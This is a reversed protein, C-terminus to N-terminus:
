PGLAALYLKVFSPELSYDIGAGYYVFTDKYRYSVSTESSPPVLMSKLKGSEVLMKYNLEFDASKVLTSLQQLVANVLTLHACDELALESVLASLEEASGMIQYVLEYVVPISDQVVTSFKPSLLLELICFVEEVLSSVQPLDSHKLLKQKRAFTLFGLLTQYLEKWAYNKHNEKPDVLELLQYMIASWSKFIDINLKRTLNTRFFVQCVDLIYHFALKTGLEDLSPPVIPTSQHCLKYKFEDISYTKLNPAIKQLTSNRYTGVKPSTIKLLTLMAFKSTARLVSQDHVNRLVYSTSSLWYELVQSAQCTTLHWLFSDNQSYAAIWLNLRLLPIYVGPKKPDIIRQLESLFPSNKGLLPLTFHATDSVNLAIYGSGGITNASVWAVFSSNQVQEVYLDPAESYLAGYSRALVPCLRPVFLEQFSQEDFSLVKLHNAYVNLPQVASSIDPQPAYVDAPLYIGPFTALIGEALFLLSHAEYSLQVAPHHITAGDHKVSTNVLVDHIAAALNAEYITHLVAVIQPRKQCDHFLLSSVVLRLLSVIFQLIHKATLLCAGDDFSDDRLRGVATALVAKYREMLETLTEVAAPEFLIELSDREPSSGLSNISAHIEQNSQEVTEMWTLLVLTINAAAEFDVMTNFSVLSKRLVSRQEGALDQDFRDSVGNEPDILTSYSGSRGSADEEPEGRAAPPMAPAGRLQTIDEGDTFIAKRSVLTPVDSKLSIADGISRNGTKLLAVFTSAVHQLFQLQRGHGSLVVSLANKDAKLVYVQEIASDSYGVRFMHGYVADIDEM